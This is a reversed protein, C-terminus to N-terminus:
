LPQGMLREIQSLHDQVTRCKYIMYCEVVAVFIAVLEVSNLIITAIFMVLELIAFISELFIFCNIKSMNRAKLSAWGYIQTLLQFFSLIGIVAYLIANPESNTLYFVAVAMYVISDASILGLGIQCGNIVRQARMSAASIATERDAPVHGTLPLVQYGPFGTNYPNYNNYYPNQRPVPNGVPIMSATIIPNNNTMTVDNSSSMPYQAMSNPDQGNYIEKNLSYPIPKNQEPIYGPFSQAQNYNLNTNPNGQM